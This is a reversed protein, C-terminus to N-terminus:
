SRWSLLWSNYDWAPTGLLSTSCSSTTDLCMPACGQSLLQTVEGLSGAEELIRRGKCHVHGVGVAVGAWVRMRRM